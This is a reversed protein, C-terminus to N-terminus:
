TGGSSKVGSSKVDLMLDAQLAKSLGIIPREGIGLEALAASIGQLLQTFVLLDLEFSASLQGLFWGAWVEVSLVPADAASGVADVGAGLASAGILRELVDEGAAIRVRVPEPQGDSKPHPALAGIKDTLADTLMLSEAITMGYAEAITATFSAIWARLPKPAGRRQDM